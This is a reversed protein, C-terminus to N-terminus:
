CAADPAATSTRSGAPQGTGTSSSVIVCALLTGHECVQEADHCHHDETARADGNGVAGQEHGDGRDQLAELLYSVCALLTGHTEERQDEEGQDHERERADHDVADSGNGRADSQEHQEGHM